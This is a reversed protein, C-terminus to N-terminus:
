GIESTSRSYLYIYVTVCSVRMVRVLQGARTSVLRNTSHLISLYVSFLSPSASFLPSLPPPNSNYTGRPFSLERGSQRVRWRSPDNSANICIWLIYEKKKRRSKVILRSRRKGRGPVYDYYNIRSEIGICWHVHLYENTCVSLSASVHMSRCCNRVLFGSDGEGRGRKGRARSHRAAVTMPPADLHPSTLPSFVRCLPSRCSLLPFM